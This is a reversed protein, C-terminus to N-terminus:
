QIVMEITASTAPPAAIAWLEDTVEFQTTVGGTAVNIGGGSLLPSMNSSFNFANTGPNSLIVLLPAASTKKLIMQPSNSVQIM